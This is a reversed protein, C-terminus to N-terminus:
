IRGFFKAMNDSTNNKLVTPKYAALISEVYNCYQNLKARADAGSVSLVIYYNNLFIKLGQGRWKNYIKQLTTM